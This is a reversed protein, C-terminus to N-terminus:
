EGRIITGNYRTLLFPTANKDLWAEENGETVTSSNPLIYTGYAGVTSDLGPDGDTYGQSIFTTRDYLVLGVQTSLLKQGGTPVPYGTPPVCVYDVTQLTTYGLLSAMPSAAATAGSGTFLKLGYTKSILRGNGDFLIVGGVKVAAGAPLNFGLYADSIYQGNANLTANILTQAGIGPPLPLFDRGAVCDLYILPAGSPLSANQDPVNPPVERVIAACVRDTTPDIYFMIGRPEQLGVAEERARTILASLTNQGAGISRTGTISQIAPIALLIVLVIIGMVVLM